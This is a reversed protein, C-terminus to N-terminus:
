AQRSDGSGTLLTHLEGCPMARFDVTQNHLSM